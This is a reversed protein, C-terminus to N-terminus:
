LYKYLYHGYVLDPDEPEIRYNKPGLQGNLHTKPNKGHDWRPPWNARGKFPLM